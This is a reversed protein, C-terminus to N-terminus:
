DWLDTAKLDTSESIAVVGPETHKLNMSLVLKRNVPVGGLVPVKLREGFDGLFNFCVWIWALDESM